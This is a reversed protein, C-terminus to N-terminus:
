SQFTISIWLELMLINFPKNYFVSLSEITRIKINLRLSQKSVQIQDFCDAKKTIQFLLQFRVLILGSNRKYPFSMLSLYSYSLGPSVIPILSHKYNKGEQDWVVSVFRLLGSSLAVQRCLVLFILRIEFMEVQFEWTLTPPKSASTLVNVALFVSYQVLPINTVNHSSGIFHLTCTQRSLFNWM